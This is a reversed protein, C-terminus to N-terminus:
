FLPFIIRVRCEGQEDEVLGVEGHLREVADQVELLGVGRDATRSTSYAEKFAVPRLEPPFGDGNDVITIEVSQSMTAIQVKIACNAGVAQQANIWINWFIVELLYDNAYIQPISGYTEITLNIPAFTVSYKQNMTKLWDSVIVPGFSFHNPDFRSSEIIRGVRQFDDSLEGLISLMKARLTVDSISDVTARLRIFRAEPNLIANRLKHAIRGHAYRYAQVLNSDALPNLRQTKKYGTLDVNKLASDIARSAFEDTESDKWEILFPILRDKNPLVRAANAIIQRLRGDGPTSLLHLLDEVSSPDSDLVGLFRDRTELPDEVALRRLEELLKLNQRRSEMDEAVYSSPKEAM